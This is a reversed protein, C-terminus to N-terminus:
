CGMEAQVIYTRSTEVRHSLKAWLSVHFHSVTLNSNGAPM